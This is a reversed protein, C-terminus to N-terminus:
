NLAENLVESLYKMSNLCQDLTNGTAGVEIICAAKGLHQNYRSNRFIIPKCFGPYLENSKEQIKAAFKLNSQWNPHDLGGGNSGIVFMIQAANDNGIKVTPDYNENSGIADRHLDIIIDSNMEKLLNNVTRLSRSYSGTYSPYDHYTKDHLVNFGYAKLYKELEDGVRAVSYNLNTTRYNGTEEYTFEKTKKYSECTHTHFIIINKKNIDLNSYDLIENTLEFNTENKIKVNNNEQTYKESIPNTTTIQTKVDTSAFEIIEKDLNNETDTDTNTDKDDNVIETNTNFDNEKFNTIGLELSLLYSMFDNINTEDDELLSEDELISNENKSNKELKNIYELQKLNSNILFKSYEEVKIEFNKKINFSIDNDKKKININKNIIYICLVILGVTLLYKLIDRARIITVNFM